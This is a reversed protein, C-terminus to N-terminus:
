ENEGSQCFDVSGGIPLKEGVLNELYEFTRPQLFARYELSWNLLLPMNLDDPELVQVFEMVEDRSWCSWRKEFIEEGQEITV